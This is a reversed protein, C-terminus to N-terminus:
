DGKKKLLKNKFPFTIGDVFYVALLIKIPDDLIDLLRILSNFRIEFDGLDGYFMTFFVGGVMIILYILTFILCLYDTISVGDTDTLFSKIKKGM